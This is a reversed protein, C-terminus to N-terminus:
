VHMEEDEKQTEQRLGTCVIIVDRMEKEGEDGYMAGGVIVRDMRNQMECRCRMQTKRARVYLVVWEKYQAGSKNPTYM